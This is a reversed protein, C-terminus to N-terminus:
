NRKFTLRALGKVQIDLEFNLVMSDKDLHTIKYHELVEDNHNKILLVDGKGKLCWKYAHVQEQNDVIQLLGDKNFEWREHEHFLLGKETSPVHTLVVNNSDHQQLFETNSFREYNWERENWEGLLFSEPSPLQLRIFSYTGISLLLFLSFVLTRMNPM